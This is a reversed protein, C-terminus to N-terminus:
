LDERIFKKILELVEKAHPVFFSYEKGARIRIRKIIKGSMDVNEIENMKIEVNRSLAKFSIRKNTITLKGAIKAMGIKLNAKGEWLVFEDM